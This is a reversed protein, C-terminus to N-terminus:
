RATGPRGRGPGSHRVGGAAVRGRGSRRVDFLLASGLMILLGQVLSIGLRSIGQGLLISRAPDPDVPDAPVRRAATDRDPRDRGDDVILFVFLILESSAGVGFRGLTEPFTASGVTEV